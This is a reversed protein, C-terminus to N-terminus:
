HKTIGAKALARGMLGKRNKKDEIIRCAAEARECMAGDFWGFHCESVPIGLERALAAYAEVRTMSRAEGRWFAEFRAKARNRADRTAANALTGLPIATGPHLGVRSDCETDVCRYIWPWAGYLRGGYVASNQTLEVGSGCNPCATPAPLRDKVREEARPCPNAPTRGRHRLM